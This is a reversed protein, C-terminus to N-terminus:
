VLLLKHVSSIEPDVRVRNTSSGLSSLSEWSLSRGLDSISAGASLDNLYRSRAIEAVDVARAMARERARLVVNDTGSSDFATILAVVYAMPPRNGIYVTNVDRINFLGIPVEGKFFPLPFGMVAWFGLDAPASAKAPGGLFRM